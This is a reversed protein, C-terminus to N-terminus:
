FSCGHGMSWPTSSRPTCCGGSRKRSISTVGKAKLGTGYSNIAANLVIGGHKSFISLKVSSQLAGTDRPCLRRINERLGANVKNRLLRVVTQELTAVAM